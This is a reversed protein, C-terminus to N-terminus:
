AMLTAFQKFPSIWAQGLQGKCIKHATENSALTATASHFAKFRLMPRTIRKIFCYEQEFINN